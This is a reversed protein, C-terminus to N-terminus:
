LDHNHRQKHSHRYALSSRYDEALKALTIDGLRGILFAEAERFAGALSRNVAQEVLCSPNELHFGIALVGPAGLADYIDKLTVQSLDCALEWGGGHGKASRVIGRERLGAMTRRVVVANTQMCSALEASTMPRGQEAMHLLAHLIGSLRSDRRM